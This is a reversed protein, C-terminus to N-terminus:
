FRPNIWATPPSELLDKDKGKREDNGLPSQPQMHQLPYTATHGESVYLLTPTKYTTLPIQPENILLLLARM